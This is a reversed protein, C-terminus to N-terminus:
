VMCPQLRSAVDTGKKASNHEGVERQRPTHLSPPLGVVVRRGRHRLLKPRKVLALCVVHLWLWSLM